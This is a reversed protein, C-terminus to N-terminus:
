KTTGTQDARGSHAAELGTAGHGLYAGVAQADGNAIATALRDKQVASFTKWAPSQVLRSLGVTAVTGASLAGGTAGGLVAGAVVAPSAVKEGIVQGLPKSQSATRQITSDVVRGVNSWFSFEKNIKAVDPAAKALERRIASAAERTADLSSGEAITRGFTKDGATVQGDFIQRLRRVSEFSPDTNAVIMQLEGLNDYAVKDVIQNVGPTSSPVVYERKLKQLHNVVAMTDALTGKPVADLATNLAAGTEALKADALTSIAERSGSVRRRILEPVVKESLAKNQITTAGLAQAYQKEPAALFTKVGAGVLPAAAQGIGEAAAQVAAQTGISKAAESSTAPAKAGLGRKVLQAAAEGTGGGVAAGGLAGPVGGVGLGAVTGGAGGIAGGIAGGVAPLANVADMVSPGHGAFVGRSYWPTPGIGTAGTALPPPQDPRDVTFGPPLPPLSGGSAQPADLTFGPPLPPVVASSGM